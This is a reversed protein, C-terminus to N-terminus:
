KAKSRFVIWRGGDAESEQQHITEKTSAGVAPEAEEHVSGLATDPTYRWYNYVLLSGDANGVVADEGVFYRANEGLDTEEPHSTFRVIGAQEGSSYTTCLGGRQQVDSGSGYVNLTIVDGQEITSKGNEVYLRGIDTREAALGGRMVRAYGVQSDRITVTNGSKVELSNIASGEFDISSAQSVTARDIHGKTITAQSLEEIDLHNVNLLSSSIHTQYRTSMYMLPAGHTDVIIDTFGQDKKGYVVPMPQDPAITIFLPRSESTEPRRWNGRRLLIETFGYVVHRNGDEWINDAIPKLVAMGKKKAEAVMAKSAEQLEETTYCRPAYLATNETALLANTYFATQEDLFELQRETHVIRLAPDQSQDRGYLHVLRRAARLTSATLQSDFSGSEAEQTEITAHIDKDAPLTEPALHDMAIESLLPYRIDHRAAITAFDKFLAFKRTPDEDHMDDVLAHMVKRLAETDEALTEVTTVEPEKRGFFRPDDHAIPVEIFAGDTVAIKEFIEKQDELFGRKEIEEDTLKVSLQMAEPIFNSGIYDVAEESTSFTVIGGEALSNVVHFDRESTEGETVAETPVIAVMHGYGDNMEGKVIVADLALKNTNQLIGALVSVSDRNAHEVEHRILGAMFLEDEHMQPSLNEVYRVPNGTLAEAVFLGCLGTPQGPKKQTQAYMGEIAKNRQAFLKDRDM